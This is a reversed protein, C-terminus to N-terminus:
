TGPLYTASPVSPKPRLSVRAASRLKKSTSAFACRRRPARRARCGALRRHGAGIHTDVVHPPGGSGPLPLPSIPTLRNRDKSAFRSRVPRRCRDAARESAGDEAARLAAARARDGPRSQAAPRRRAAPERQLNELARRADVGRAAFEASQQDRQILARQIEVQQTPLQSFCRCRCASFVAAALLRMGGGGGEERPDRARLRAGRPRARRARRALADRDARRRGPHRALARERRPAFDQRDIVFGDILRLYESAAGRASPERGLERMMKGASGKLAKGGVIPTVAVIPVGRKKLLERM